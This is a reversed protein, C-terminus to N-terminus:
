HICEDTHCVRQGWVGGVKKREKWRRGKKCIWNLENGSTQDEGADLLPYTFDSERYTRGWTTMLTSEHVTESIVCKSLILNASHYINGKSVSPHRTNRVKIDTTELYSELATMLDAHNPQRPWTLSIKCLCWDRYAVIFKSWPLHHYLNNWVGRM